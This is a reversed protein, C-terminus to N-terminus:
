TRRYMPESEHCSRSSCAQCLVRSGDPVGASRGWERVEKVQVIEGQSLGRFAKAETLLEWLMVGFAYM